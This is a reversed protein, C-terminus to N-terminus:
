SVGVAKRSAKVAPVVRPPSRSEGARTRFRHPRLQGYQSHTSGGRRHRAKRALRDDSSWGEVPMLFSLARIFRRRRSGSIPAAMSTAAEAQAAPGVLTSEFFNLVVFSPRLYAMM